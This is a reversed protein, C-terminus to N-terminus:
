THAIITREAVQQPQMAHREAALAPGQRIRLREDSLDVFGAVAPILAPQENRLVDLSPLVGRDVDNPIGVAGIVQQAASIGGKAVASRGASRFLTTYP